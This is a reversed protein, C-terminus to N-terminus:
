QSGSLPALYAALADPARGGLDRALVHLPAPIHRSWARAVALPHTPDDALAVVTAPGSIHALDAPTPAPQAAAVRLQAALDPSSSWARALESTIWDDGAERIRRLVARVGVSDIEAATHETLAAVAEPQGIWAPMVAYLRVRHATAYFAAAHAGLSVGGVVEPEAAAIAAVAQAMTLGRVDPALLEWGLDRTRPGFARLVFEPTSGAGHLIVCRTVRGM